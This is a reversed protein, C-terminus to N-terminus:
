VDGKDVQALAERAIDSSSIRRDISWPELQITELAGRLVDIQKQARDREISVQAEVQADLVMSFLDLFDDVVDLGAVITLSGLAQKLCEKLKEKTVTEEPSKM